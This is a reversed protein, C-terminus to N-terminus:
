TSYGGSDWPPHVMIDCPELIVCEFVTGDVESQSVEYLLGHTVGDIQVSFPKLWIDALKPKGPGFQALFIDLEQWAKDGAVERGEIDYGGLKTESKLYNGEGDFLHLVALWRKYERWEETDWKPEVDGPFAGTVFAMFQRGDSLRGVHEFRLDDHPIRLNDPPGVLTGDMLAGTVIGKISRLSVVPFRNNPERM